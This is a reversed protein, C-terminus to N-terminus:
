LEKWQSSEFLKMMVEKKREPLSSLLTKFAEKISTRNKEEGNKWAETDKMEVAKSFISGSQTSIDMPFNPMRVELVSGDDEMNESQVLVVPFFVTDANKVSSASLSKHMKSELEKQAKVLLFLSSLLNEAEKKLKGSVMSQSSILIDDPYSIAKISNDVRRETLKERGEKAVELLPKDLERISNRLSTDINSFIKLYQRSINAYDKEMREKIERLNVSYTQVKTYTMLVDNELAIAKQMFQSRTLMYFGYTVNSSVNEAAVQEAAVLKNAMDTVSTEVNRVSLTMQDVHEALPETGIGVNFHAM